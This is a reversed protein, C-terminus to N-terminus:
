FHCRVNAGIRSELWIGYGKAKAVAEERSDFYRSKTKVDDIDFLFVSALRTIINPVVEFYWKNESGCVKIDVSIM